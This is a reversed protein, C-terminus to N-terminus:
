GGVEKEETEDERSDTSSGWPLEETETETPEPEPESSVEQTERHIRKAESM